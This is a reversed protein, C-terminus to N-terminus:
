GTGQITQFKEEAQKRMEDSSKQMDKAKDQYEKRMNEGMERWKGDRILCAKSQIGRFRGHDCLNGGIIASYSGHKKAVPYIFM